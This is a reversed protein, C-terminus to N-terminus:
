SGKKKDQSVVVGHEYMGGLLYLAEGNGSAAYKEIFDTINGLVIEKLVNESSNRKLEEKPLPTESCGNLTIIFCVLILCSKIRM